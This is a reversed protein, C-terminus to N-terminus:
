VPVAIRCVDGAIDLPNFCGTGELMARGDGTGDFHLGDGFRCFSTILVLRM